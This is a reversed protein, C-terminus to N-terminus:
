RSRIETLNFHPVARDDPMEIKLVSRAGAGFSAHIQQEGKLNGDEDRLRVTLIHEGTPVVVSDEVIGTGRRRIGLFGRTSFDFTKRALAQGDLDLEVSGTSMPSNFYLELRTDAPM